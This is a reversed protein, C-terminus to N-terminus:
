EETEEVGKQLILAAIAEGQQKIIVRERSEAAQILLETLKNDISISVTTMSVSNEHSQNM